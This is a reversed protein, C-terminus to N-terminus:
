RCTPPAFCTWQLAATPGGLASPSVRDSGVRRTLADPGHVLSRHTETGFAKVQELHIVGGTSDDESPPAMLQFYKQAAANDMVLRGAAEVDERSRWYIIDVFQRSGARLLERRVFGSQAALFGTQLADAAALLTAEDVGEVLTFPAWEVTLKGNVDKIMSTNHGM